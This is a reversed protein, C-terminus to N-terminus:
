SVMLLARAWDAARELEGQKLPGEQGIVYFGVSPVVLEAGKKRL